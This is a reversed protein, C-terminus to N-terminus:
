GHGADPWDYTMSGNRRTTQEEIVKAVTPNDIEALKKGALAPHHVFEADAATKGPRIIYIYGSSGAKIESIAKFLREMDAGIDMRASLAGVVAGASNKIPELTSIFYKGSRVVVGSYPKGELLAKVEKSDQPLPKGEMSSGDKDKLLTAVRVFENGVRVMVAPDAGIRQRLEELLARNGNLVRGGARAVGVQAYSGMAMTQGDVQLDAGLDHRLAEMSKQAHAVTNAHHLELMTVVEHVQERLQQETQRLAARDAFYSVFVILGLFLVTSLVASAIAIQHVLSLRSFRFM